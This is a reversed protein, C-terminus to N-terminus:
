LGHGINPFAVKLLVAVAAAVLVGALPSAMLLADRVTSDRVRQAIAASTGTAVFWVLM